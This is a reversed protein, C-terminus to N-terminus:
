LLWRAAFGLRTLACLLAQLHCKRRVEPIDSAGIWGTRIRLDDDRDIIGGPM